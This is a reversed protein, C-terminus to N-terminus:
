LVDENPKHSVLIETQCHKCHWVEGNSVSRDFAFDTSKDCGCENCYFETEWKEIDEFFDSLLSEVYRTQRKM